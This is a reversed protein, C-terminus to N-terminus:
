YRDASGYSPQVFIRREGIGVTMTVFPFAFSLELPYDGDNSWRIGFGFHREFFINIRRRAGM